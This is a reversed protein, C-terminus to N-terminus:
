EDIHNRLMQNLINTFYMLIGIVKAYNMRTPGIVGIKGVAKNGIKYTAKVISCEKIEDYINEKGISVSINNDDDSFIDLLKEKHELLSLFNKAKELDNYEPYYFINTTGDLIIDCDYSKLSENLVPIISSLIENYGKLELQISSIVSLDIDEVTLGVLKANLMNNITTLTNNSIPRPIKIKCHRIIGTDTVIVAIIDTSSLQILQISKVSSKKVSPSLVASTYQTLNSLLKSIQKITKDIEDIETTEFYNKINEIEYISPKQKEMIENVFFRYGKDSPIRGASTHPQELYGLEELDAMENRITASSIGMEYKKAITRSGVPEATDIYDIIVARLITKKREGLDM